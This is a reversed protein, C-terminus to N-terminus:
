VSRAQWDIGLPFSSLVCCSATRLSFHHGGPKV